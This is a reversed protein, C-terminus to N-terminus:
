QETILLTLSFSPPNTDLIPEPESEILPAGADDFVEFRLVGPVPQEPSWEIQKPLSFDRYITFPACGAPCFTSSSAVVASQEGNHGNLYIRALMDRSIPQTTTDRLSQQDTLQTCVLDVYRIAQCFTNGGGETGGGVPKVVTNLSNFGLLDFLQKTTNPFPYATSNYPLPDFAVAVAINNSNYEFSPLGNDAGYTMTFAALTLDKTRIIAQLSSALQSPTYFGVPVAVDFQNPLVGGGIKIIIKNTKLNINPICWPFVVESVALRTMFGNLSSQSRSITFAYPNKRAVQLAPVVQRAQEYDTFRDEGDIALIATSAPRSITSGVETRYM